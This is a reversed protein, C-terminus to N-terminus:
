LSLGDNAFFFGLVLNSLDILCMLVLHLLQIVSVLCLYLLSFLDDAVESLAEGLSLEFQSQLHLVKLLFNIVQPLVQLVNFLLSVFVKFETLFLGLIM